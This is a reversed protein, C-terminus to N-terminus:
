KTLVENGLFIGRFFTELFAEVLLGRRLLKMIEGYTVGLVLMFM